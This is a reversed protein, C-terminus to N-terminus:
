QGCVVATEEKSIRTKSKTRSTDLEELIACGDTGHGSHPVSRNDSRLVPATPEPNRRTCSLPGADHPWLRYATGPHHLSKSAM